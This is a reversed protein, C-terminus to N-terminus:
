FFNITKLISVLLFPTILFMKSLEERNWVYSNQDNNKNISYKKVSHGIKCTKFYYDDNKITKRYPCAEKFYSLEKGDQITHLREKM